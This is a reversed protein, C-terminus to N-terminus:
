STQVSQHAIRVVAELLLTLLKGSPLLEDRAGVVLWRDRAATYRRAAATDRADRM